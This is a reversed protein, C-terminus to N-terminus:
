KLGIDLPNRKAAPPPPAPAPPAPAVAVPAPKASKASGSNHHVAPAVAPAASPAPATNAPLASEVAVPVPVVQPAVTPPALAAIAPSSLSPAGVPSAASSAAELAASRSHVLWAVLAGVVVVGGVALAGVKQTRRTSSTTAPSWAAATLDGPRAAPLKASETAPVLSNTTVGAARLVRSIREASLRSKPPAFEVLANAFESVNAFRQAPDKQMCREIAAALELPAAPCRERLPPPAETLVMACLEPMTTAEFPVRGSLLEYLIVGLAWVDARADVTRTSRMQEPAMYMPSGMVASTKTLSLEPQSGAANSVAKSIGFDLVKIFNSGDARRILFLNAPKLDRHVIGLAHAEAIAECAQLVYDVAEDIPMAGHNAVRHALDSGELYEMVIYPSGSPLAGVDIVRAVHESEIRVASRAERAFRAVVEPNQLSDDLLFKIAVRRELLLDYAAVVVGMGGVGLVREVRYKGALTDGPQVPADM